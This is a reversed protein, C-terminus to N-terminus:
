AKHGPPYITYLITHTRLVYTHMVPYPGRANNDSYIHPPPFLSKSREECLIYSYPMSLYISIDWLMIGFDM